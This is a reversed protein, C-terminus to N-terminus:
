RLGKFNDVIFKLYRLFPLLVSVFPASIFRRKDEVSIVEM